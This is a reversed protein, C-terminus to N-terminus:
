RKPLDLLVVESHVQGRELVIERGDPSIDFDRAEFDPPLDTIRREAGSELDVAWLDKHGIEGRLFVLTRSGPLFRLQRAGRSLTLAPLPFPTGDARMGKLPFTTGIDPGSFLVGRGDPSWIPDLAADNGLPEPAGGGLPVRFLRPSGNAVAAATIAQSDATWAPAGQWDLSKDLVRAGTGDANVVYLLARGDTGALFAIRGGDPDLAPGGLIRAGPSTWLESATEGQQKWISDSTGQPSVYVLYDRALRPSTGGGTTLPVRRAATADVSGGTMPMRWLSSRARAQTAALRRGDASGALSTYADLGTSVRRSLRREVDATYLWPGSGSADTALYVLTRPNVFVPHSVRSEHQTIREPTGGAAPLRWIDMRDPLAGQVFYIFREDPSWLVFHSHQGPSAAFVQYDEPTRGAQRVFMPDGPGPTHYVLRSADASWDFEAVGELYPRPAGGLIPAAWISIDPAQAGAPRRTWFTVLAGDPSFGLSRIAPNVIERRADRTLNHFQGTGAQTMWVDVRGDRDALFAVFRGDRSIAVAPEPGDSETLPVFTADALPNSWFADRRELRWVVLAVTLFVVAAAASAATRRRRRRQVAAPSTSTAAESPEPVQPGFVAAVPERRSRAWADLESRLASVSGLRDHVHRHVPMAERKEWRQVTTVDRKLYAAIDKWHRVRLARVM